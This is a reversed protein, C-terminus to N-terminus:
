ECEMKRFERLAELVEQANLMYCTSRLPEGRGRRYNYIIKCTRYAKFLRKPLTANKQKVIRNPEVAGNGNTKRLDAEYRRKRSEPGAFDASDVRRGITAFERARLENRWQQGITQDDESLGKETNEGFILEPACPGDLIRLAMVM